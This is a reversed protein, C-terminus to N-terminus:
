SRKFSVHASLYGAIIGMAPMLFKMSGFRNFLPVSIMNSLERIWGVHLGITNPVIYYFLSCWNAAILIVLSGIVYITSNKKKDVNGMMLILTVSYPFLTNLMVYEVLIREIWLSKFYVAQLYDLHKLYGYLLMAIVFVATLLIWKMIKNNIKKNFM